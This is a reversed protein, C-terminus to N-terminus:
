SAAKQPEAELLSEVYSLLAQTPEFWEGTVRADAFRDHLERERDIGGPETALLRAGLHAVRERLFRSVGIKVLGDPGEAFYITSIGTAPDSCRRCLDSEPAADAIEVYRRTIPGCIWRTVNGDRGAIRHWRWGSRGWEVSV